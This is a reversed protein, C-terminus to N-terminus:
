SRGGREGRREGGREEPPNRKKERAKVGAPPAELQEEVLQRLRNLQGGAQPREEAPIERLGRLLLTIRGKRGLYEVRLHDLEPESGCHAVRDLIEERLTELSEQM